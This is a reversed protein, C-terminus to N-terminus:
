VEPYIYPNLFESFATSSKLFGTPVDAFEHFGEPDKSIRIFINLFYLFRTPIQQLGKFCMSFNHFDM